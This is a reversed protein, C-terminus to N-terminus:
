AWNAYPLGLHLFFCIFPPALTSERLSERVHTCEKRERERERVRRSDELYFLATVSFFIFLYFYDSSRFLCKGLSMSIVLLYILLPEVDRIM